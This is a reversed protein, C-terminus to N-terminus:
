AREALAKDVFSRVPASALNAVIGPLDPDACGRGANVVGVQAPRDGVWAVVPGGSDGVCFSVHDGTRLCLLLELSGDSGLDRKVLGWPCSSTTVISTHAVKLRNRIRARETQDPTRSRTDGWGTLSVPQSSRTLDEDPGILAVPEIGTVPETLTLVAVDYALNTGGQRYRPHVQITRVGRRAGVDSRLLTRGVVVRLESAPLVGGFAKSISENDVCHAATLVHRTDVLSGGCVFRDFDNSALRGSADLVPIALLAAQYRYTRDGDRVDEVTGTEFRRATTTTPGAAAPSTTAVPRTTSSAVARGQARSGCASALVALVALAALLLVRRVRM